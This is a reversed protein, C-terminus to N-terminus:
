EFAGIGQVSGRCARVEVYLGPSPQCYLRAQPQPLRCAKWLRERSIEQPGLMNGGLDASGQTRLLRWVQEQISTFSQSTRRGRSGCYGFCRQFFPRRLNSHSGSTYMKCKTHPFPLPSDPNPYQQILAPLFMPTLTQSQLFWPFWPSIHLTNTVPM